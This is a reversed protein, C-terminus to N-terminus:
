LNVKVTENIICDLLYKFRLIQIKGFRGTYMKINKTKNGKIHVEILTGKTREIESLNLNSSIGFSLFCCLILITRSPPM